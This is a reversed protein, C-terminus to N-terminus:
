DLSSGYNQNEENGVAAVIIVGASYARKIAENLSNSYDAGVFSLNIINAGNAVAYDIAKVVRDTSGEGKDDLVKLAMIKASWTVGAIGAANNGSAAAIGAVITGHLIGAETFGPMFKPSPDAVNNVFDWGYVDDIYGNKDDDINNGPIEKSNAWLNSALDPHNIQVGSDIIAITINPSERIQDWAEVAKIKQLYWQNTFYTDSPIISAHYLFNPEAYEVESQNQYYDLIKKFNNKQAIKVVVINKNKKFKVLIEDATRQAIIEKKETIIAFATKSHFIFILSSLSALSFFLIFFFILKKNMM